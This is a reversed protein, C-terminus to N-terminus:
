ICVKLLGFAIIILAVPLLLAISGAFLLCLVLLPCALALLISAAIKAAGWAVKFALGITKFFLWCFFVLVILDLMM